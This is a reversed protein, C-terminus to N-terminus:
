SQVAVSSHFPFFEVDIRFGFDRFVRVFGRRRRDVDFGIDLDLLFWGGLLDRGSGGRDLLEM